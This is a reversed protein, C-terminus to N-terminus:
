RIPLQPHEPMAAPLYNMSFLNMLIRSAVPKTKRVAEAIWYFQARCIIVICNGASVRFRYLM